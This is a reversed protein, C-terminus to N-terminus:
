ISKIIAAQIVVPGILGSEVLPSNKSYPKWTTFTIKGDDPKPKSSRYWEPISQLLSNGDKQPDNSSAQEDGILRNVWLNTVSIRLENRGKKVANTIDTRYPRKWLIGLPKENMVVEAIVEVRGLDLFLHMGETSPITELNFHNSYVSTGSFYKVGNVPHKHLSTLQDLVIQSPAGSLPPFRVQWPGELVIDEKIGNIQFSRSSNKTTLTYTGNKWLLLAPKGNKTTSEIDNPPQSFEPKVAMLKIIQDEALVEKHLIPRTMDGFFGSNENPLDDEGLAPHVTWDSRVGKAVLEGNVYIIPVARDYVLAIHSWGEIPVAAALVMVPNDYGHEWVAIGNRGVALGCVAHGEGYLENGPPPYIAYADTWPMKINGMYISPALLAEIEPKVWFSISFNNVTDSFSPIEKKPFDEASILEAGNCLLSTYHSVSSSRFVIFASGCPELSLPVRTSDSTSEYFPLPEIKGTAPDWLEPQRNGVRFTGVLKEEKRKKNAIFYIDKDAQRRHIFKVSANGSESSYQFDAQLNLQKLVPLLSTNTFVIGKGTQKSSARENEAPWLENTLREFEQEEDAGTLGYLRLPKTGVLIMGAKVLAHLKRLLSLTIAYHRQFILIRYKMGGPLHIQNNRISVRNMITEAGILDYDFGEPPSPFLEDANVRTYLHSEEGTFYLLDALFWGPRLLYQCRALYDTWPRSQQWWTNTREFHIGYSGLGLGPSATPHPQHTYCHIIMENIGRTFAHDAAPKLAFPHVQWNSSGAESTFAEAGVQKKGNVHAISSVLKTIRRLSFNNQLVSFIGNWFEGLVVDAKAGAQMEEMPGREYPQIYSTFGHQHCLGSFREYYNEAILDAQTRRFDQLFGESHEVSNIVRGTVAPLYKILDYGRKKQFEEPFLATWNQMGAEYSDIELGTKGRVQKLAPLLSKMMENFHLDFAARNFKDCELGAATDPAAKIMSGTPTYGMRLITWNGPPAQWNLIGGQDVFPTIDLISDYQIVSGAAIRQENKEYIGPVDEGGFLFRFGAKEMFHDLREVGSFKIQRYVRAEDSLLRFYKAKTVPIDYTIFKNGRALDPEFGTNITVVNQFNIGDDSSRLLVSTRKDAVAEKMSKLSSIFFNLFRAEYPKRFELQLYASSDEDPTVTVGKADLEHIDIVGEASSIEKVLSELNGEGQLSPFALVAIDHYYNLKQQPVPLQIKIQRGGTIFAESWTIQQMALEPTIWPGGSASWGPCNHQVFEMGLRAAEAVAHKKLEIWEKSLYTVPGKPVGEGADFNFVGSIGMQKMAELDLTIGERSINGNMWFWILKPYVSSPPQRFNEQRSGNNDSDISANDSPGLWLILGTAATTKIFKRRHM